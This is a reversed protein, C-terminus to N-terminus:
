PVTASWAATSGSEFGDAFLPGWPLEFTTDDGAFAGFGWPATFSRLLGGGRTYVGIEGGSGPNLDGIYIQGDIAAVAATLSSTIPISGTVAGSVPDIEYLANGSDIALLAAPSHIAALGGVLTVGPNVVDIDLVGVPINLQPDYVYIDSVGYDLLYVLGGLVAIGDLSPSPAPAPDVDLVAGTDPDLEFLAGTGGSGLGSVFYLTRGDFALGVNGATNPEPAPIRNLELGTLPDIEAIMFTGDRPYAFMRGVFADDGGLAAYGYPEAFAVLSRGAIDFFELETGSGVNLEGTGALGDVVALGGAFAGTPVGPSAVGTIPDIATIAGAM